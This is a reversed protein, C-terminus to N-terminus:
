IPSSMHTSTDASMSYIMRYTVSLFCLSVPLLLSSPPPIFLAPSRVHSDFLTISKGGRNDLGAAVLVGLIGVGGTQCVFVILLEIGLLIPRDLIMQRGGERVHDYCIDLWCLQSQLSYFFPLFMTPEARRYGAAWLFPSVSDTRFELASSQPAASAFCLHINRLPRKQKMEWRERETESQTSNQDSPPSLVVVTLHHPAAPFTTQPPPSDFVVASTNHCVDWPLVAPGRKGGCEREGERGEGRKRRRQRKNWAMELGGRSHNRRKKGKLEGYLVLAIKGNSM